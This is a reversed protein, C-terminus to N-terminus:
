PKPPLLDGAAPHQLLLRPRGQRHGVIGIGEIERRRGAATLLESGLLRRDVYQPTKYCSM